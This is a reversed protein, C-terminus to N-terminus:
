QDVDLPTSSQQAQIERRREWEGRLWEGQRQAAARSSGRARAPAPPFPEGANYTKELRDAELEFAAAVLGALSPAGDNEDRTAWWAAKLRSHLDVPLYYAQHGLGSAGRPNAGRARPPPAPFPNGENYTKELHCAERAFAVEVLGALSPAGDVEDRTAWWAAKLRIHLATPIFYSFSRYGTASARGPPRPTEEAANVDRTPM